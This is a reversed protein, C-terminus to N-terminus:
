NRSTLKYSLCQMCSTIIAKRDASLKASINVSGHLRSYLESCAFVSPNTLCIINYVHVDTINKTLRVASSPRSHNSKRVVTIGLQPGPSISSPVRRKSGLAGDSPHTRQEAPKTNMEQDYYSHQCFVDDNPNPNM